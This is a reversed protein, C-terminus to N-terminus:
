MDHGRVAEMFGRSAVGSLPDSSSTERYSRPLLVGRTKFELSSPMASLHSPRAMAQIMATLNEFQMKTAIQFARISYSLSVLDSKKADGRLRFIGEILEALDLEGSADADLIEFFEEIDGQIGLNSFVRRGEESQVLADYLEEYITIDKAEELITVPDKFYGERAFDQSAISLRRKMSKDLKWLLIILDKIHYLANQDEVARLRNQFAEDFQAHGIAQQVFTASVLNFVGAITVWLFICYFLGMYWGYKDSLQLSLPKGEHDNCDGLMCRLLTYM